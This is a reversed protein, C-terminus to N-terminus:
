TNHRIPAPTTVTHLRCVRLPWTRLPHRASSGPLREALPRQSVLKASAWVVRLMTICDAVHPEDAYHTHGRQQSLETQTESKRHTRPCSAEALSSSFCALMAPRTNSCTNAPAIMPPTSRAISRDLVSSSPSAISGVSAAGARLTEVAACPESNGVVPRQPKHSWAVCGGQLSHGLELQKVL